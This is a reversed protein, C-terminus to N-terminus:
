VSISLSVKKRFYQLPHSVITGDPNAIGIFKGKKIPELIPQGSDSHALAIQSAPLDDEHVPRKKCETHLTECNTTRGQSESFNM